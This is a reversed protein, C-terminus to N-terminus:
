RRLGRIVRAVTKDFSVEVEDVGYSALVPGVPEAATNLEIVENSVPSHAEEVGGPTEVGLFPNWEIREGAPSNLARYDVADASVAPEATAGVTVGSGAQAADFPSRVIRPGRDDQRGAEQNEVGFLAGPRSPLIQTGLHSITALNAVPATPVALAHDLDGDVVVCTICEKL